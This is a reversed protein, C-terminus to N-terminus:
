EPRPGREEAPRDLTPPRPVFGRRVLVVSAVLLLLLAKPLGDGTTSAGCGVDGEVGPGGRKSPLASSPRVPAARAIPPSGADQDGVGGGDGADGGGDAGADPEGADPAGADPGPAVGVTLSATTARDGSSAGNGNTSNGVANLTVSGPSAPAVLRFTFSAVGSVFLAPQAHVVQGSLLKTQTGATLQGGGVVVANMGAASAAGGVVQLTYETTSGPAVTAPGLLSVTPTGGASHCGNCQALTTGTGATGASRASAAFSTLGAGLAALVRLWGRKM